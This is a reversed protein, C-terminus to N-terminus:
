RMMPNCIKVYAYLMTAALGMVIFAVGFSAVPNLGITAGLKVVAHALWADTVKDSNLFDVSFGFMQPITVQFCSQIPTLVLLVALVYLHKQYYGWLWKIKHLM